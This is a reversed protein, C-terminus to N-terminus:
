CAISLLRKYRACAFNCKLWTAVNAYTSVQEHMFKSISCIHIMLVHFVFPFISIDPISPRERKVGGRMCSSHSTHTLEFIICM